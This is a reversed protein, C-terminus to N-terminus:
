GEMLCCSLVLLLAFPLSGDCCRLVRFLLPYFHMLIVPWCFSIFAPFASSPLFDWPVLTLSRLLYFIRCSFPRVPHSLERSVVIRDSAVLRCFLPSPLQNSCCLPVRIYPLLLFSLLRRRTLPFTAPLTIPVSSPYSRSFPAPVCWGPFWLAYCALLSCLFVFRPSPIYQRVVPPPMPVLPFCRFLFICGFRAILYLVPRRPLDLWAYGVIRLLVGRFSCLGIIGLYPPLQWLTSMYLNNADRPLFCLCDETFGSLTDYPSPSYLSSRHIRNRALRTYSVQPM